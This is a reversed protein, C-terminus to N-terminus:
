KSREARFLDGIYKGLRVSIEARVVDRIITFSDEYGRCFVRYRATSDIKEEEMVKISRERLIKKVKVLDSHVQDMLAQTAAIYLKRLSLDTTEIRRYNQEVITLMMPLIISDRILKFEEQTPLNPKTREEPESRRKAHAERLEPLVIRSSEWLGNAELKKSM